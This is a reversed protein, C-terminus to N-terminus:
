GHCPLAGLCQMQSTLSLSFTLAILCSRPLLHPRILGLPARLAHCPRRRVKSALLLHPQMWTIQLYVLMLAIISFSMTQAAGLSFLFSAFCCLFFSCSFLGFSVIIFSLVGHIYVILSPFFPGCLVIPFGLSPWPRFMAADRSVGIHFAESYVHTQQFVTLFLCISAFTMFIASGASFVRTEFRLVYDEGPWQAM